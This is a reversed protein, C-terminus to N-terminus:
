GLFFLPFSALTKTLTIIGGFSGGNSNVWMNGYGAGGRFSHIRSRLIDDFSYAGWHASTQGLYFILFDTYCGRTTGTPCTTLWTQKAYTGLLIDAQTGSFNYM